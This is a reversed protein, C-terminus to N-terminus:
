RPRRAPQFSLADGPPTAAVKKAPAKCALALSTTAWGSAAISIFQDKGHPFGSEYYTQFPRSRSRVLWSGDKQQAKLLFAIGRQYVPDSVALGGAQHLAVLASGTAYADSDMNDKQGWGGDSRQSGQLERVAPRLDVALVGAARLGLVRFVRDETDRAPTKLLWTRAADIRRGIREQQALTGWHRMGRIALYTVTFESAESPPRNGSPRWHDLKGDRQLLYEVVGETTADAKWGALELALLAYGATDAQGGQGQGKRYNDRHRGLFAAIFEAQKKVTEDSVPFGGTRATTLALLPLAQNHCAFCTRKAIHGEAGKVLLPLAKAVAARVPAAEKKAPEAAGVAGATPLLGALVIFRSAVTRRM